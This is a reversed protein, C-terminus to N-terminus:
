RAQLNVGGVDGPLLIPLKFSGDGKSPTPAAVERSGKQFDAGFLVKADAKSRKSQNRLLEAKRAVRAAMEAESLSKAPEPEAAGARLVQAYGLAAGVVARRSPRAGLTWAHACSAAALLVFLHRLRSRM